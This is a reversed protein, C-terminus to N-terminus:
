LQEPILMSKINQRLRNAGIKREHSRILEVLERLDNIVRDKCSLAGTGTYWTDEFLKIHIDDLMYVELAAKGYLTRSVANFGMSKMIDKTLIM